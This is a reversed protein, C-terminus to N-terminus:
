LLLRQLLLCSHRFFFLDLRRQIFDARRKLSVTTINFQNINFTAGHTHPKHAVTGTSRAGRHREPHADLPNEFLLDGGNFLYNGYILL